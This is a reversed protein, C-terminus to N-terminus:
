QIWSVKGQLSKNNVTIQKAVERCVEAADKLGLLIDDSFNCLDSVLLSLGIGNTGVLISFNFNFDINAERIRNPM